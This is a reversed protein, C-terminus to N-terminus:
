KWLECDSKPSMPQLVKLASVSGGFASYQVAHM